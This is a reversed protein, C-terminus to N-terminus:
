RFSIMLNIGDITMTGWPRDVKAATARLPKAATLSLEKKQKDWSAHHVADKLWFGNVYFAERAQETIKQICHTPMAQTHPYEGCRILERWIAIQSEEWQPVSTGFQEWVLDIGDQKVEAGSATPTLTGLINWQLEYPNRDAQGRIVRDCVIFGADPLIFVYRQWDLGGYNKVESAAYPLPTAGHDRLLANVPPLLATGSDADRAVLMNLEEPGRQRTSFAKGASVIGARKGYGNSVLWIRGGLNMRLIGSAENHAHSIKQNGIGELALYSSEPNWGSRWSLKDFWEEPPGTVANRQAFATDLHMLQWGTPGSFKRGHEGQLLGTFGFVSPRIRLPFPGNASAEMTQITQQEPTSGDLWHAVEFPRVPILWPDSDGYDVPFFFNDRMIWDRLAFRALSEKMEASVAQNTVELWVLTHEPVFTEYIGANESYKFVGPDVTEFVFDADEKWGSLDPLPWRQFYRWGLILSRAKFTPHNHPPGSRGKWMQRFYGRVMRMAGLLLQDFTIREEETISPHHQIWNWYNCILGMRFDMDSIYIQPNESNLYDWFGWLMERFLDLAQESGTCQYYRIADVGLDLFQANYPMGEPFETQVFFERFVERYPLKRDGHWWEGLSPLTPSIKVGSTWVAFERFVEPVDPGPFIQHVWRLQGDSDAIEELAASLAAVQTKADCTLVYCPSFGTELERYTTLGWGGEGPYESSFVGLQYKRAIEFSCPNADGGGLFLKPGPSSLTAAPDTAKLVCLEVGWRERWAKVLANALDRFFVDDGHVIRLEELPFNPEKKKALFPDPFLLTEPFRTQFAEAGQGLAAAAAAEEEEEASLSDFLPYTLRNAGDYGSDPIHKKM